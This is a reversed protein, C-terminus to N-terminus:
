PDHDAIDKLRLFFMAAVNLDSFDEETSFILFSHPFQGHFTCKECSFPWPYRLLIHVKDDDAKDTKENAISDVVDMGAIVHGYVQL